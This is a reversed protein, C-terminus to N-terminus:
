LFRQKEAKLEDAAKKIEGSALALRKYSSAATAFMDDDTAYPSNVGELRTIHRAVYNVSNETILDQISMVQGENMFEVGFIGLKSIDGQENTFTLFLDLPPLQDIRTGNFYDDIFSNKFLEALVAEHFVTFIMTGAITVYGRTFGKPTVQGLAKVHEKDRYISYSITQLEALKKFSSNFALMVDNNENIVETYNNLTSQQVAQQRLEQQEYSTVGSNGTLFPDSQFLINEGNKTLEKQKKFLAEPSVMVYVNIDAGSFSMKNITEKM